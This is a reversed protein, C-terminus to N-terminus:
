EIIQLELKKLKRYKNVNKNHMDLSSSFNHGGRGNVVFYIDNTKAPNVVAQLSKM